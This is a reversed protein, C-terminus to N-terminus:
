KTYFKVYETYTAFEVAITIPNSYKKGFHLIEKEDMTALLAIFKPNFLFNEDQKTMLLASKAFSLAVSKNPTWSQIDNEPVYVVPKTSVMYTRTGIKEKKWDKKLTGKKFFDKLSSPMMSLGRYLLTGDTTAPKFIKPYKEKADKFLEFHKYLQKAASPNIGSQFWDILIKAIEAEIKTDKEGGIKGQLKAISEADTNYSTKQGFAVNQFVSESSKEQLISKLKIM